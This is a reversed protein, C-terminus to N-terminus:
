YGVSLGEVDDKHRLFIEMTARADELSSHMGNQIDRQLVKNSLERLSPTKLHGNAMQKNILYKLEPCTALDRTEM